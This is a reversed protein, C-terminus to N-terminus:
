RLVSDITDAAREIDHESVDRHTVARLRKWGTSVVLVGEEALRAVVSEAMDQERTLDLLLINSEPRVPRVAPHGSLREALRRALRHDEAIRPLHHDLAYLAAAALIGNQRMGGGLRKRLAWGDRRAAAPLGLCSGAPCGLGKSFTVMVTTAGRTLWHPPVGLVTAANWLRAGDLHLPLGSEAAVRAIGAAIEVPMVRGGALNHTNEVVIAAARPTVSSPPRIAARVLDATLM